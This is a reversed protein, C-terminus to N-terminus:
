IGPTDTHGIIERTDTHRATIDTQGVVERNDTLKMTVNMQRKPNNTHGIMERTDIHRAIDKKGIKKQGDTLKM